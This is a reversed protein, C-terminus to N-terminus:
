DGSTTEMSRQNKTWFRVRGPRYHVSHVLGGHGAPMDCTYGDASYDGCLAVAPVRGESSRALDESRNTDGGKNTDFSVNWCRCVLSAALLPTCALLVLLVLALLITTIAISATADLLNGIWRLTKM